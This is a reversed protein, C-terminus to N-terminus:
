ITQSLIIEDKASDWIFQLTTDQQNQPQRIAVSIKVKDTSLIVVNVAIDCINRLYNLDREVARLIAIRGASNLATENLIKETESNFQKAPQEQFFLSNGWWDERIQGEIEDGKTIAQINGGFLAVYVQQYLPNVLEIDKNQLLLDGGNGTEYLLIDEM